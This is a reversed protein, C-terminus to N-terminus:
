FFSSPWQSIFKVEVVKESDTRGDGPHDTYVLRLDTIAGAAAKLLVTVRRVLSGPGQCHCSARRRPTECRSAARARCRALDFRSKLAQIHLPRPPQPQTQTEAILPVM